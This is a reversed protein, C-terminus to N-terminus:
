DRLNRGGHGNAADGPSPCELDALMQIGCFPCRILNPPLLPSPFHPNVSMFSSPRHSRDPFFASTVLFAFPLPKLCLTCPDIHLFLHVEGDWARRWDEPVLGARRFLHYLTNIKPREPFLNQKNCFVFVRFLSTPTLFSKRKRGGGKDTGGEGRVSISTFTRSESCAFSM